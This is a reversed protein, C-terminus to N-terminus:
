RNAAHLTKKNILCYCLFLTVFFNRDFYIYNLFNTILFPNYVLLSNMCFSLLRPVFESVDVQLLYEVSKRWFERLEDRTHGEYRNHAQFRSVEFFFDSVIILWFYMGIFNCNAFYWSDATENKGGNTNDKKAFGNTVVFMNWLFDRM